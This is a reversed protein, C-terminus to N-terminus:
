GFGLIRIRVFLIHFITKHSMTAYDYKLNIWFSNISEGSHKSILVRNNCESILEEEEKLNFEYSMHIEFGIVNKLAVLIM